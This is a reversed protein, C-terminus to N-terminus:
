EQIMIEINIEDQSKVLGSTDACLVTWTCGFVRHCHKCFEDLTQMANLSPLFSVLPHQTTFPVSSAYLSCIHFFILVLKQSLSDKSLEYPSNGNNIFRRLHVPFRHYIQRLDRM